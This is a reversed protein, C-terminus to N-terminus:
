PSGREFISPVPPAIQLCNVLEIFARLAAEQHATRAFFEGLYGLREYKPRLLAAISAPLEDFALKPIRETLKRGPLRNFLKPM